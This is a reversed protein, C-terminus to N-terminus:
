DWVEVVYQQIQVESQTIMYKVFVQHWSATSTLNRARAYDVSMSPPAPEILNLHLDMVAVYQPPSLHRCPDSRLENTGAQQCLNLSQLPLMVLPM